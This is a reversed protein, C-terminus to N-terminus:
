ARLSLDALAILIANEIVVMARRAFFADHRGEIKLTDMTNTKFNYTEQAMQISSAPRIFCNIVLDNGNTIGGNIGGSHNTKTKGHRNIIPDNFESGLLKVGDFGIGFSVGKIGPISYLMSSIVSEASQFFPEGLGVPVGKVVVRVIAGVSNGTQQVAQIYADLPQEQTKTGVQVFESSIEYNFMMKAFAGAIVIPTTLRGSFHGSGPLTNYGDYKVKSVFDTHSPRPTDEFTYHASQINTNPIRIMIPTGTTVDRYIGSEIQYADMEVRKTEGVAHPRRRQLDRNILDYDVQIGPKMGDIIIGISDGHSEGYLQITFSKGFTNM